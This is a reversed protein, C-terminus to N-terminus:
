RGASDPLTVSSCTMANPLSSSVSGFGTNAYQREPMREVVIHASDCAPWCDRGCITSVDFFGAEIHFADNAPNRILSARRNFHRLRLMGYDDDTATRRPDRSCRAQERAFRSEVNGYDVRCIHMVILWAPCQDAATDEICGLSGM